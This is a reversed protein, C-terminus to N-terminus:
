GLDAMKARERKEKRIFEKLFKYRAMCQNRSKGEVAASVNFWREAKEMISTYTLLAVEFADQQEQTWPDALVAREAAEKRALEEALRAEERLRRREEKEARRKALAEQVRAMEADEAEKIKADKEAKQKLWADRAKNQEEVAQRAEEMAQQKEAKRAIREEEQEREFKEKAEKEAKRQAKAAEKAAEAERAAEGDDGASASAGETEAKKRARQKAIALEALELRAKLVSDTEAKSSSVAAPPLPPAITLNAGPVTTSFNKLPALPVFKIAPADKLTKADSEILNDRMMQRRLHMKFDNIEGVFKTVTKNDCM